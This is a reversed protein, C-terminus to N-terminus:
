REGRIARAAIALGIGGAAIVLAPNDQIVGIPGGGNVPEAGPGPVSVTKCEM